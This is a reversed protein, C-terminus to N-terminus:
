AAITIKHASSQNVYRKYIWYTLCIAIVSCFVIVILSSSFIAIPWLTALGLSIVACWCFVDSINFYASANQRNVNFDDYMGQAASKDESKSVTIEYALRFLEYRARSRNGFYYALQQMLAITIPILYLFSLERTQPLQFLGFFGGSSLGIVTAMLALGSRRSDEFLSEVYKLDTQEKDM